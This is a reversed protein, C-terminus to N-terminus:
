RAKKWAAVPARSSRSSSQPPMPGTAALPLLLPPLPAAQPLPAARVSAARSSGAASFAMQRANPVLEHRFAAVQQPTSRPIRAHMASWSSRVMAMICRWHCGASTKGRGSGAGRRLRGLAGARSAAPRSCARCWCGPGAGRAAHAGALQGGLQEVAGGAPPHRVAAPAALRLVPRLVLLLALLVPGLCSASHTQMTCMASHLEICCRNVAAAGIAVVNAVAAALSAASCFHNAGTKCCMHPRLFTPLQFHAPVIEM